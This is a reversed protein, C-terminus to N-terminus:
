FLRRVYGPNEFNVDCSADALLKEVEEPDGRKATLLLEQALLQLRLFSLISCQRRACGTTKILEAYCVKGYRGSHRVPLVSFLSQSQRAVALSIFTEWAFCDEPVFIGIRRYRGMMQHGFSVFREDNTMMTM